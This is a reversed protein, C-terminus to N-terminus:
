DKPARPCDTVLGDVPDVAGVLAPENVARVGLYEVGDTPHYVDSRKDGDLRIHVYHQSHKAEVIVGERKKVRVRVGVYAPVGYYGRVYACSDPRPERSERPM